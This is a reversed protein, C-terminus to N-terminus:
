VSCNINYYTSTNFRQNTVEHPLNQPEPNLITSFDNKKKKEAVIKNAKRTKASSLSFRKKPPM